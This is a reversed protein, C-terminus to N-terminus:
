LQTSSFGPHRRMRRVLGAELDAYDVDDLLWIKRAQSCAVRILDGRNLFTRQHHYYM